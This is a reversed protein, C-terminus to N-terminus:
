RQIINWDSGNDVMYYNQYDDINLKTGCVKNMLDAVRSLKIEM